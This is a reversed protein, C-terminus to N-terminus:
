KGALEHSTESTRTPTEILYPALQEARLPGVLPLSELDRPSELKPVRGLERQEIWRQATTPGIGPLLRLENEDATHIDVFFQPIVPASPYSSVHSVIRSVSTASFWTALVAIIVFFGRRRASSIPSTTRSNPADQVPKVEM